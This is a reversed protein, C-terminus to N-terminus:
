LQRVIAHPMELNHLTARFLHCALGYHLTPGGTFRLAAVNRIGARRRRSSVWLGEQAVEFSRGWVQPGQVGQVVDMFNM